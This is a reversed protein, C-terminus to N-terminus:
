LGEFLDDLDDSSVRDSGKKESDEPPEDVPEAEVILDDDEVIDDDTLLIVSSDQGFPDQDTESSRNTPPPPPTPDPPEPALVAEGAHPPAADKIPEVLGNGKPSESSDDNAETDTQDPPANEPQVEVQFQVGGIIFTAKAPLRVEGIMEGRYFTGNLSGLDRLMLVGNEEYIQCHKRSFMPHGITLDADRSRGIVCPLKVQRTAKVTQELRVIISVQM